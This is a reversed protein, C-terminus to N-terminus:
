MREAKMMIKVILRIRASNRFLHILLVTATKSVFNPLPKKMMKMPSMIGWFIFPTAMAIDTIALKIPRM